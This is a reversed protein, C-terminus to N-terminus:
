KFCRYRCRYISEICSSVMGTIKQLDDERKQRVRRASARNNIRRRLSGFQASRKDGQERRWIRGQKMCAVIRLM